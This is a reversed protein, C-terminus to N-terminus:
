GSSWAPKGLCLMNIPIETPCKHLWPLAVFCAGPVGPWGSEVEVPYGYSTPLPAFCPFLEKLMAM